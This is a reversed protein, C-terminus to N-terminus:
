QELEASVTLDVYDYDYVHVCYALMVMSDHLRTCCCTVKYSQWKLILHSATVVPELEGIYIGVQLAIAAVVVPSYGQFFGNEVVAEWDNAWVGM